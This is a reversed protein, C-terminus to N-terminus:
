RYTRKLLCFLPLFCTNHLCLVLFLLRPLAAPKWNSWEFIHYIVYLPEYEIM